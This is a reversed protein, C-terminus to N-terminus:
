KFAKKIPDAADITKEAEVLPINHSQCIKTFFGDQNGSKVIIAMRAQPLYAATMEDTTQGRRDAGGLHLCLLPINKAKAAALLGEVRANEKAMDLGAAGLGKLSAGLVLILTKHGELDKDAALKGLTCSLGAKKILVNALQVDASQGASTLLIPQEFVGETRGAPAAGLLFASLVFVCASTMISKKM